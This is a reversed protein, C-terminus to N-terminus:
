AAKDKGGWAWTLGGAHAGEEGQEGEEGGEWAGGPALMWPGGGQRGGAQAGGGAPLGWVAGDSGAATGGGNAAPLMLLRRQAVYGLFAACIILGVFFSAVTTTYFAVVSDEFTNRMNMGFLGAISTIVTFMLTISTVVLDIGVIQNRRNDLDINVLDETDDIRETLAELRGLLAEAQVYYFELLNECDEVDHPSARPGGGGGAGAQQVAWDTTAISVSGSSGVESRDSSTKSGADDDDSSGSPSPPKSGQTPRRRRAAAAAEAAERQVTDYQHRDDTDRRHRRLEDDSVRRQYPGLHPHTPPHPPPLPLPARALHEPVKMDVIRAPATTPVDSFPTRLGGSPPPPPPLGGAAAAPMPRMAVHPEPAPPATWAQPTPAEIDSAAAPVDAITAAAGGGGSGGAEGGGAIPLLRRSSGGAVEGSGWRRSEESDYVEGGGGGGGGNGGGDGDSGGDDTSAPHRLEPPLHWEEPLEGELAARRGLYMDLMDDDDDLIGRLAGSLRRCRGGVAKIARKAERVRELKAPSVGRALDDAARPVHDELWCVQSDLLRVAEYLATELARLEYPLEMDLMAADGDMALSRAGGGGGGGGGGGPARRRRPQPAVTAAAGMDEPGPPPPYYPAAIGSAAGGGGGGHVLVPPPSSPLPQAPPPLALPSPPTPQRSPPPLPSVASPPPTGTPTRGGGGGGGDGAADSGGGGGHVTAEESAAAAAAAAEEERRTKEAEWAAALAQSRRQRLTSQRNLLRGSSGGGGSGGGGGGGTHRRRHLGFFHPGRRHGHEQEQEQGPRYMSSGGGSLPLSPFSGAATLSGRATLPSVDDPPSSAADAGGGGAAAAGAAASRLDPTIFPSGTIDGPEPPPPPPPAPGSGYPILGAPSSAAPRRRLSSGGGGGNVRSRPRGGDAAATTMAPLAATSPDTAASLRACLATIFPCRLPHGLVCDVVRGGFQAGGAGGGGTGGYMGYTDGAGYGGPMRGDGDLPHQMSLVYVQDAGVILRVTELNVVLARERILIATPTPIPLAPDIARLDRYAIGMDAVLQHRDVKVITPIGDRSIHFVRRPHRPDFPTVSAAALTGSGGGGGGGGGTPFGSRQRGLAPRGSLTRSEYGYQPHPDWPEPAGRVAAGNFGPAAAVGWGAPLSAGHRLAWQQQQQQQPPPMRAPPGPQGHPRPHPWHPSVKGVPLGCCSAMAAGAAAAWAPDGRGTDFGVAAARRGESGGAPAAGAGAGAGARGPTAGQGRGRPVAAVEGGYVAGPVMAVRTQKRSTAARPDQTAAGAGANGSLALRGAQHGHRASTRETQGAVPAPPPYILQAGTIINNPPVATPLHAAAAAAAADEAPPRYHGVPRRKEDAATPARAGKQQRALSTQLQQHHLHHVNHLAAATAFPAPAYTPAESAEPLLLQQGRFYEPALPGGAAALPAPGAPSLQQREELHRAQYQHEQQESQPQLLPEGADQAHRPAAARASFRPRLFWSLLGPLTM